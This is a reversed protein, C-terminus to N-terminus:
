GVQKQKALTGANFKNKSISKSKSDIGTEPVYHITNYQETAITIFAQEVNTANKASTEIFSIERSDAFEQSSSNAVHHSLMSARAHCIEM